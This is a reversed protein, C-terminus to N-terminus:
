VLNIERIEIETKMGEEIDKGPREKEEDVGDLTHNIVKEPNYDDFDKELDKYGALRYIIASVIYTVIFAGIIIIGIYEFSDSLFYWFRWWGNDLHLQQGILSFFEILAVLVAVIVSISTITLNYFLKRVPNIYAWTYTFLMLMSDLSDILAMGISSIRLNLCIFDGILDLVIIIKGSTFLLPLLIILWISMGRAGQIATIGLLTIESATDFGLGFLFGLPYMKWSANVFRFVPRFFRGLIGRNSLYEEIDIETYVGEQKVKRMTKIVGIMCILNLVAILVLFVISVSTGILGGIEAFNDISNAVANATAAVIISTIFVVTSHGM